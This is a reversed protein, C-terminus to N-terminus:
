FQASSPLSVFCRQVCKCIGFATPIASQNHMQLVPLKQTIVGLWNAVM